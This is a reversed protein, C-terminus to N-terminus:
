EEGNYTVDKLMLNLNFNYNTDSQTISSIYIDEVNDIYELGKAFEAISWKDKAVGSISIDNQYISLSNLFTDSPLRFSIQSLFYEDIFGEKEIIEDLNKISNVESAFSNVMRQKEEIEQVKRVTNPDEAIDKLIAVEKRLRSIKVQNLGAFGLSVVLLLALFVIGMKKKDLKFGGKDIYPEFFNIERM